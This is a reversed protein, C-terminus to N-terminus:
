TEVTMEEMGHKESAKSERERECMKRVVQNCGEKDISKSGPKRGAQIYAGHPCPNHRDHGGSYGM